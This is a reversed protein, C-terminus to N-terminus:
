ATTPAPKPEPGALIAVLLSMLCLGVGLLYLQRAGFADFILGSLGSSLIHGLGYLTVSIFVLATTTYRKPIRANVLSITSLLRFSFSVCTLVNLVFVLPASPFLWVLGRRLLDFVFTFLIMQRIGFRRILRDGWLMFPVEGLASLTSALGIMSQTLGLDQMFLPEFSRFGDQLTDTLALALVTFWLYRDRIILSLVGRMPLGKEPAGEVGEASGARDFLGRPLLAFVLGALLMFAIFIWNNITIATNQYIWGGLLAFSAFGISGWLRVSGFQSFAGTHAVQFSLNELTSIASSNVLRHITWLLLIIAFAQLWPILGLSLAMVLISLLILRRKHPSNDYFLGLQPALLILVVASVVTLLSIQIGDFGIERYHLSLFPQLIGLSGFFVLFFLRFLTAPKKTKLDAILNM